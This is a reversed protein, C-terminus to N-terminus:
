MNSLHFTGSDVEISIGRACIDEGALMSFTTTNGISWTVIIDGAVVCHAVRVDKYVGSTLNCLGEIAEFCQITDGAGANM